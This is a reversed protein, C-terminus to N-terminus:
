RKREKIVIERSKVVIEGVKTFHNPLISKMEDKRAEILDQTSIPKAESEFDKKM